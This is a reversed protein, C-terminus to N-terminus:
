LIERNRDINYLLALRQFFLRFVISITDKNREEM